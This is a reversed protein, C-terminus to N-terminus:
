SLLIKRSVFYFLWSFTKKQLCDLDSPNLRRSLHVESASSTLNGRDDDTKEESSEFFLSLSCALSRNFYLIHQLPNERPTESQFSRLIESRWIELYRILLITPECCPGIGTRRFESLHLNVILSVIRTDLNSIPM